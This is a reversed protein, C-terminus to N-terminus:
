INEVKVANTSKAIRKNNSDRVFVRVQYEGPQQVKYSLQKEKKYGIKKFVKNDKYIYYAYSLNEGDAICEVKLSSEVKKLTVKEIKPGTGEASQSAGNGGTEKNCGTVMLLIIVLLMVLKGKM